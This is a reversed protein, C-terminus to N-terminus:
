IFSRLNQSFVWGEQPNGPLKIKVFTPAKDSTNLKTETTIKFERTIGLEVDDFYQTEETKTNIKDFHMDAQFILDNKGFTLFYITFIVSILAIAIGLILLKKKEM